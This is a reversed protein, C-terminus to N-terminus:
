SNLIHVSHIDLGTRFNIHLRDKGKIQFDSICVRVGSGEICRILGIFAESANCKLILPTSLALLINIM